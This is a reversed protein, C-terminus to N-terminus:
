DPGDWAGAAYRRHLERRVRRWRGQAFTDSRRWAADQEIFAAYEARRGHRAILQDAVAAIETTPILRPAILYQWIFCVLPGWLPLSVVASVIWLVADLM